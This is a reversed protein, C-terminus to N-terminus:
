GGIKWVHGDSRVYIAGNAVSPTGLVTEGLKLTSAVEGEKGSCDIIQLVGDENVIYLRDGAVIPTASFKKGEMRIQWLRKGDKVAGCTLVGVGNVTYIRDGAVVPSSTSPRMQGSVWLEKVDKTSSGPRLATVGNAPVYLTGDPGVTSSPIAAAGGGFYWVEEGTRPNVAHVGATSQLIVTTKGNAKAATPSTWNAAKPRDMKWLNEGTKADIGAAFSESDNEVQVVVVGDVIVPSSAMGLSNSANPYDVTLGRLWILNGDLDLCLLDNSSFLVYLRKGDSVPTPAAVCTKEHTMTRGTAWFQREWLKKGSKAALCIVHLRTQEPGSAASLFVKDGVVIPSSLGRGPLGVQWKVSDQSFKVPLKEDVVSSGGPGRFQTWNGAEAGTALGCAILGVYISKKM